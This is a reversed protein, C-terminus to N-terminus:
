FTYLVTHPFCVMGMVTKGEEEVNAVGGATFDQPLCILTYM